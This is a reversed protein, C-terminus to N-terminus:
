KVLNYLIFITLILIIFEYKFIFLIDKNNRIFYEITNNKNNSLYSYNFKKLINNINVNGPASIICPMKNDIYLRNDIYKLNISDFYQYNYFIINNDIEMDSLNNCLISFFHQDDYDDSKIFENLLYQIYYNYGIYLGASIFTNKCLTFKKLKIYRVFINNTTDLSFVIKKDSYYKKFKEYIEEKNSLIISDFGDIHCIIINPDLTKIHNLINLARNKWNIWKDGYGIINLNINNKKCSDLLIPFLRESHTAYTIFYIDNM